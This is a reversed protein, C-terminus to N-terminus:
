AEKSPSVDHPDPASTDSFSDCSGAYSCGSCGACGCGGAKNKGTAYGYIKWALIGIALAVIVIGIITGAM